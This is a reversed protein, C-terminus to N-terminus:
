TREKTRRERAALRDPHAAAKAQAAEEAALAADLGSAMLLRKTLAVGEGPLEALATARECARSRAGDDEVIEDVLGWSLAEPASLTRGSTFWEFTRGAGILRPVTYSAGADPVAGISAFGPLFTASSSAIRLDCAAALALGAGVAAGHVAAVIPKPLATMARVQSSYRKRQNAALEAPLRPPVKMDAGACFARGAGALVVARVDDAAAASWADLLRDLLNDDLANLSEPRNLTVLLVPGDRELLLTV